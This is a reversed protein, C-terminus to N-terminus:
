GPAYVSWNTNGEAVIRYGGATTVTGEPWGDGGGVHLGEGAPAGSQGLRPTPLAGRYPMCFDGYSGGFDLHDNISDFLGFSRRVADAGGANNVYTTGFNFQFYNNITTNNSNNNVNGGTM